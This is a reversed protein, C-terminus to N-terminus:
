FSSGSSLSNSTPAPTTPPPPPLTVPSPTGTVIIVTTTSDSTSSSGSFKIYIVLFILLLLVGIIIVLIAKNKIMEKHMDSLIKKAQSLEDDAENTKGAIRGIVATQEGLNKLAENSMDETVTVYREAERLANSGKSLTQTNQAMQIRQKKTEEDLGELGAVAAGGGSASGGSGLLDARDATATESKLKLIDKDFNLARKKYEQLGNRSAERLSVPFDVSGLERDMSLITERIQDQRETIIKMKQIRSGPGTGPPARYTPLDRLLTQRISQIDEQMEKLWDKLEDEYTAYLSTM